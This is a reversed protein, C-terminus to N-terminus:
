RVFRWFSYGASRWDERRYRGVMRMLPPRWGYGGRVDEYHGGFLFVWAYPLCWMAGSRCRHPVNRKLWAIM